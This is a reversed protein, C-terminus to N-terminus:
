CFVQLEKSAKLGNEISPSSKKIFFAELFCLQSWNDNSDIIDCNNLVGNLIHAKHDIQKSDNFMEPLANIKVTEQFATFNTLHQHMPQDSRTGHENMLIGFCRDTKGM